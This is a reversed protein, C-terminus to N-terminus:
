CLTSAAIREWRITCSSSNCSYASDPARQLNVDGHDVGSHAAVTSAAPLPVAHAEFAVPAAGLHVDTMVADVGQEKNEDDKTIPTPSHPVNSRIPHSALADRMGAPMSLLLSVAAAAAAADDPDEDVASSPLQDGVTNSQAIPPDQKKRASHNTCVHQAGKSAHMGHAARYILARQLEEPRAEPHFLPRGAKRRVGCFGCVQPAM